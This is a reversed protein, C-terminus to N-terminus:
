VSNKKVFFVFDQEEIKIDVIYDSYKNSLLEKLAIAEKGTINKFRYFTFNDSNLSTSICNLGNVIDPRNIDLMKRRRDYERIYEKQCKECRHTRNNKSNVEVMTGCDVCTIIKIGMPTYDAASQCEACRCTKVALPNVSFKKGCDICEVERDEANERDERHISCYQAANNKPRFWRGCVRCRKYGGNKYNLYAYALELYDFEDLTLVVEYEDHDVFAATLANYGISFNQKLLGEKYVFGFYLDREKAPIVVRAFKFIESTKAYFTDNDRQSEANQYKALALIVFAIKEKRIDNLSMITDMESKTINIINVDKIKYKYAKNIDKNITNLYGQYMFGSYNQNMFDVIKWFVDNKDVPNLQTYYVAANWIAQNISVGDINKDEVISYIRSKENFNFRM